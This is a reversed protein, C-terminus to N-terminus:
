RSESVQTTVVRDQLDVRDQLLGHVCSACVPYVKFYTEASLM